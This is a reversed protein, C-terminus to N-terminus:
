ALPLCIETRLDKPATDHPSNLSIEYSPHDAPTEGSSPLWQGFLYDYAAGLDAYPGKHVLVAVRGAPLHKEELTDPLSLDDPVEICAMSSLDAADVASPDDCYVGIANRVHPWLGQAEAITGLADFAKGIEEYPGRHVVGALRRAPDQRIEVNFM